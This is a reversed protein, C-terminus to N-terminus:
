DSLPGWIDVAAPQVSIDAVRPLTVWFALSVLGLALRNSDVTLAVIAAAFLYLGLSSMLTSRDSLTNSGNPPGFREQGLHRAM